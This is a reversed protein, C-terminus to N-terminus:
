RAGWELLLLLDAIEKAEFRDLLGSPMALQRYQDSVVKAPELISELVLRRDFRRGVGTLDPGLGHGNSNFRHCALCQAEALIQYGREASAQTEWPDVAKMAANVTWNRVFSRSKQPAVDEPNPLPPLRASEADWAEAGSVTRLGTAIHGLFGELSAGGPLLASKQTWQLAQRQLGPTWDWTVHRLLSAAHIQEEPGLPSQMRSVLLAPTRPGRLGVWLELGLRLAPGRLFPFNARLRERLALRDAELLSQPYRSLLVQATRLDLLQITEERWWGEGMLRRWVSVALSPQTRALALRGEALARSRSSGGFDPASDEELVWSIWSDEENQELALRAPWRLWPDPSGLSRWATEATVRKQSAWQGRILPIPKPSAPVKGKPMMRYLSSATGRGGTLIWLAGDPGAALDTINWPRGEAFVRVKGSFTAGDPKLQVALLRGYAWDALLLDSDYADADALLHTSLLGTPSSFDTGVVAPLTDPCAPDLKASGTRWGYDAGPVLHLLRPPRYWPTGIDWEMDADYGFLAGDPRFAIDYVNRMGGALLEWKEGKADTRWLTGAPMTIGHAHGRPDLIGKLLVDEAYNQFPSSAAALGPPIQVHNGWITYLAGEPGVLIAHAAHESAPGFALLRKHQDLVGDGDLDQLRHLGGDAESDAAVNAYLSDNAWCLGQARGVPLDIPAPEGLHPGLPDVNGRPPFRLLRGAEPSVFLSGDPAFAMSIWSGEEPGARRVLELEFNGSHLIGDVGREMAPPGCSALALLCWGLGLARM